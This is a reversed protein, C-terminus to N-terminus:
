VKIFWKNHNLLFFFIPHRGNFSIISQRKVNFREAYNTSSQCKRLRGVIFDANINIPFVFYAHFKNWSLVNFLIIPWKNTQKRQCFGGILSNGKFRGWNLERTFCFHLSDRFGTLFHIINFPSDLFISIHELNHM